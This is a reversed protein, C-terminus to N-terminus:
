VTEGRKIKEWNGKIQNYIDSFDKLSKELTKEDMSHAEIKHSLNNRINIITDLDGFTKTTTDLANREDKLVGEDVLMKRIRKPKYQINKFEKKFKSEFESIDIYIYNDILHDKQFFDKFEEYSIIRKIKVDTLILNELFDNIYWNEFECWLNIYRGITEFKKSSVSMLQM